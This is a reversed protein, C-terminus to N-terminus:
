ILPTAASVANAIRVYDAVSLQDPRASRDVESRDWDVPLAKLANDLRKRRASFATRLVADLRAPHLLPLTEARPTLRVLSSRVQPPPVFSSPEVDFLREVACRFQVLVSLRGWAKTGPQGDIREALEKQLMFHMDEIPLKSALLRVLLPTSINYPLNGAIRWPADPKGALPAGEREGASPEKRALPAGEREGASPEGLEDFDFQLVDAVILELKPFRARLMPALDRDIEIAVLRETAGHLYETLAGRGPGIELLRDTPRPGICELTRALVSADTLFHQGFRKRARM